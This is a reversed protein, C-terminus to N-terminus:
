VAGREHLSAIEDPGYGLEALIADTDKIEHQVVAAGPVQHLMNQAHALVVPDYDVYIIRAHPAAEQAAEHTNKVTPLGAGLDFAKFQTWDKGDFFVDIILRSRDFLRREEQAKLNADIEDVM